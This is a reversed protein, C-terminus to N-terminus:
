RSSRRATELAALLAEADAPAPSNQGAARTSQAPRTQTAPPAQQVNLKLNLNSLEKLKSVVGM